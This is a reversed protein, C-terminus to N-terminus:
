LKLCVQLEFEPTSSLGPVEKLGKFILGLKTTKLHEINEQFAATCRQPLFTVFGDELHLRVVEGFRSKVISIERIVYLHDQDLDKLKRYVSQEFSGM